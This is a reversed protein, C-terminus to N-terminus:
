CTDMDDVIDRVVFDAAGLVTDAAGYYLRIREGDRDLPVHGCSFVVNSFVGAREFPESPVLIPRRSRALIRTPDEPDLLLAGMAYRQDRDVGHYLELWGEAVRIPVSGAGTRLEDWMGWRPLALPQHNGWTDLDDSFAIWIGLVRGFSQPMPRTLAVYRGNVREPFLVVDKHDPLFIVGKREFERFDTTTARSTTIGLRSVSVYTIEWAGDIWTARPDECGYEEM